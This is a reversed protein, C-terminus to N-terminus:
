LSMAKKANNIIETRVKDVVPTNAPNLSFTKDGYKEVIPKGFASNADIRLSKADIGMTSWFYGNIFLNPAYYNRAPNPTLKAKWKAYKVAASLTKFFTDELYSPTIDQGYSNKGDWLQGQIGHVIENECTM